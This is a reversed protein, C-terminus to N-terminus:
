AGVSGSFVRVKMGVALVGSNKNPLEYISM